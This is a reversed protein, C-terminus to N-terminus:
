QLLEDLALLTMEEWSLEKIRLFLCVVIFLGKVVRMKEEEKRTVNIDTVVM